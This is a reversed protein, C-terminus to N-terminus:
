KSGWSSSSSRWSPTSSRWWTSSRWRGRFDAILGAPLPYSLGLKLFSAEPFPRAPTSTPPARLRRDRSPHRGHGDPQAPTTEAYEALDLLRQEVCPHRKTANGPLMTYKTPPRRSPPSRRRARPAGGARRPQEFALHAHHHPLAGAHRLAREDRLRAQRLGQGRPQGRARPAPGQRVQRLQPQGAREPLQAHAPDDATVLVLGGKVGTYSATFLPDAAVNVGVHKMCVLARAGAMAAGLGVELAVKENPSWESYVDKYRAVVELIETSPTGPYAAALRVGAEWAGRAIAENGSLIERM